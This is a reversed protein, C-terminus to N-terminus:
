FAVAAAQASLSRSKRRLDLASLFVRQRPVGEADSSIAIRFVYIGVSECPMFTKHELDLRSQASWVKNAESFGCGPCRTLQWQTTWGIWPLDCKKQWVGGATHVAGLVSLGWVNWINCKNRLGLVFINPLNSFQDFAVLQHSKWPIIVNNGWSSHLFPDQPWWTVILPPHVFKGLFNIFLFSPKSGLFKPIACKLDAM